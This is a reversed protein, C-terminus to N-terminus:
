SAKRGKKQRRLNRPKALSRVMWGTGWILFKFSKVIVRM